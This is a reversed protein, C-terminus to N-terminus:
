GMGMKKMTRVTHWEHRDVLEGREYAQILEEIALDVSKKPSFGTSLLKDSNQRYSRPDNSEEFKIKAGTKHSIKSALEMISMNEFGANYVGPEIDESLLHWYVQVLDDIHINPRVQSGGFVKLERQSLASFTLLNVAVDLRM